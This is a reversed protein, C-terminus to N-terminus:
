RPEALPDLRPLAPDRLKVLLAFAAPLPSGAARDTIMGFLLTMAICPLLFM